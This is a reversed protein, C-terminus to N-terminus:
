MKWYISTKLLNDLLKQKQISNLEPYNKDIM